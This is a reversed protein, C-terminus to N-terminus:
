PAEEVPEYTAEFVDAKCPYCGTQGEREQIIWEGPQITVNQGQATTVHPAGWPQRVCFTPDPDWKRYGHLCEGDGLCVGPIVPRQQLDIYQEAEVVVPKKRFKM